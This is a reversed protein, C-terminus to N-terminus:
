LYSALVEIEVDVGKPLERVAVCSRAPPNEKFYTEYVGNVKPFTAMDTLFITTKIVNQYGLGAEDLVAGVNKMALETQQEISTKVVENTAPDIPIQGSCYLMDGVKMAQSYPGVPHPAKKTYIIQKM